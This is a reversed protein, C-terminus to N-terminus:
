QNGFHERLFRVMFQVGERVTMTTSTYFNKNDPILFDMPHVNKGRPFILGEVCGDRM